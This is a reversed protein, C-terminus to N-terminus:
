DSSSTFCSLAEAICATLGKDAVVSAGLVEIELWSDKCTCEKSKEKENVPTQLEKEMEGLIQHWQKPLWQTKQQESRQPNYSLLTLDEVPVEERDTSM